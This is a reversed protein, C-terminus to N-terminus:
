FKKKQVCEKLAKDMKKKHKKQKGIVKKIKEGSQNAIILTNGMKYIREILKTLDKKHVKYVLLIYSFVITDIHYVELESM